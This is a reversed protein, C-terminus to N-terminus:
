ATSPVAIRLRKMRGRLSTLRMLCDEVTANRLEDRRECTCSISDMTVATTINLTISQLVFAPLRSVAISIILIFKFVHVLIGM